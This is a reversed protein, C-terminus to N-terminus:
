KLFTNTVHTFFTSLSSVLSHLSNEYNPSSPTQGGARAWQNTGSSYMYHSDTNAFYRRYNSYMLIVAYNTDRHQSLLHFLQHGVVYSDSTVIKWNSSITLNLLM